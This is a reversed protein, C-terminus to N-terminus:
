HQWPSEEAAEAGNDSWRCHVWRTVRHCGGILHQAWSAVEEVKIGARGDLDCNVLLVIHGNCCTLQM